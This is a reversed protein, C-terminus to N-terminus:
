HVQKRLDWTFGIWSLSQIVWKTPDFHYIKFGNRFDNPYTHHFNHYGEGLAFLACLFSDRSTDKSSHPQDGIQHALSNIFFTSQYLLVIRLCGAILFYGWVDNFILGLIVPIGLSALFGGVQGLKHQLRIGPHRILDVVNPFEKKLNESYSLSPDKKFSKPKDFFIWLIHSWWFGLKSNYPDSDTDTFRHHVRHDSCWKIASNQLAMAGFLLLSYEVLANTKFTKHSWLRHYGMTIGFGSVWYLVFAAIFPGFSFPTNLYYLPLGVLAVVHFLMIFIFNVWNFKLQYKRIHNSTASSLLKM